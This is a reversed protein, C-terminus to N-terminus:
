QRSCTSLASFGSLRRRRGRSPLTSANSAPRKSPIMPMRASAFLASASNAALTFTGDSLPGFTFPTPCAGFAAGDLRCEFTAGPEDTTFSFATM